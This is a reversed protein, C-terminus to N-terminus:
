TGKCHIRVVGWRWSAAVKQSKNSWTLKAQEQVEHLHFVYKPPLNPKELIINKVNM